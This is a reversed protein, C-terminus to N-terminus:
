RDAWGAAVVCRVGIKILEEAVGAAFRPRDPM